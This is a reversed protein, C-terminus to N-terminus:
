GRIQAIAAMLDLHDDLEWDLRHEVRVVGDVAHVLRVLLPILCRQRVTGQLTVVGDRVDVAFRTPDV